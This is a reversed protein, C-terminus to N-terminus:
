SGGGQMLRYIGYIIGVDFVFILMSDTFPKWTDFYAPLEIKWEKQSGNFNFKYSFKPKDKGMELFIADFGSKLDWPISFPFSTSLTNFLLTFKPLKLTASCTEGEPFDVPPIETGVPPIDEQGGGNPNDPTPNANVVTTTGDPKRQVIPDEVVVNNEEVIRKTTSGTGTDTEVKTRYGISGDAKKYPELEIGTGDEKFPLATPAIIKLPENPRYTRPISVEDAKPFPHVVSEMTTAPIYGLHPILARVQATTLTGTPYSSYGIDVPSDPFNKTQVEVDSNGPNKVYMSSYILMRKGNHYDGIGSLVVQSYQKGNFKFFHNQPTSVSLNIVGNSRMEGSFYLRSHTQDESDTVGEIMGEEVLSDWAIEDFLGAVDGNIAYDILTFGLAVATVPAVWDLFKVWKNFGIGGSIKKELNKEVANGLAVKDISSAKKIQMPKSCDSGTKNEPLCIMEFGEKAKLREDKPVYKYNMVMSFSMQVTNDIIAEKAIKKATQNVVKSAVAANAQQMNM